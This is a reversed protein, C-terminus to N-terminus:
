NFKPRLLKSSKTLQLSTAIVPIYNVLIPSVVPIHSLLPWYIQSDCLDVQCIPFTTKFVLDHKNEIM